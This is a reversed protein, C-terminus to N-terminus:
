IGFSKKQSFNLIFIAVTFLRAFCATLSHAFTPDAKQAALGRERMCDTAVRPTTFESSSTAM